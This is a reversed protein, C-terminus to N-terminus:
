YVHWKFIFWLFFIMFRGMDVVFLKNKNEMLYSVYYKLVISYWQVAFKPIYHLFLVYM